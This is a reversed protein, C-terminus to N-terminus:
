RQTWNPHPRYWDPTQNWDPHLEHLVDRMHDIMQAQMGVQRGVEGLKQQLDIIQAMHTELAQQIVPDM